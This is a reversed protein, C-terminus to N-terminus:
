LPRTTFMVLNPANTLMRGPRSPRTWMELSPRPLRILATSSTSESPWSISTRTSSISSLPLTLRLGTPSPGSTVSRHAGVSPPARAPARAAVGAGAVDDAHRELLREVGLEGALEAIEARGAGRWRGALPRPPPRSARHGHCTAAVTAAVAVTTAPAM